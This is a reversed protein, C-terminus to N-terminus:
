RIMGGAMGGLQAGLMPNGLAAGAAGGVVSGIAGWPSSEPAPIMTPTLMGAGITKNVGARTDTSYKWADAAATYANPDTFGGYADPSVINSTLGALNGGAFQQGTGLINQIRQAKRAAVNQKKQEEQGALQGQLQLLYESAPRYASRNMVEGALNSSAFGSNRLYNGTNAVKDQYFNGWKAKAADEQAQLDALDDESLGEADTLLAEDTMGRLKNQYDMQQQINEAYGPLLQNLTSLVDANYATSQGKLPDSQSTIEPSQISEKGTIVGDKVSLGYQQGNTKLWKRYGQVGSFKASTNQINAIEQAIQADSAGQTKRFAAYAIPNNDKKNQKASIVGGGQINTGGASAGALLQDNTIIGQEILFNIANEKDEPTLAVGGGPQTRADAASPFLYGSARDAVGQINAGASSAGATLPYHSYGSGGATTGTFAGRPAAQNNFNPTNGVLVM